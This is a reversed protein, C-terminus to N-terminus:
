VVEDARPLRRDAGDTVDLLVSLLVFDVIPLVLIGILARLLRELGTVDADVTLLRKVVVVVVVVVELTFEIRGAVAAGDGADDLFSFVSHFEDVRRLADLGDVM